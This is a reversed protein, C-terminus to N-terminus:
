EGAEGTLAAWTAAVVADNDEGAIIKEMTTVMAEFLKFNKVERGTRDAIRQRLEDFRQRDDAAVSIPTFLKM